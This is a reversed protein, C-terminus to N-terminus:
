YTVKLHRNYSAMRKDWGLSTGDFVKLKLLEIEPLNPNRSITRYMKNKWFM